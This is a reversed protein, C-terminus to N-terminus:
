LIRIDGNFYSIYCPFINRDILLPHLASDDQHITEKKKENAKSLLSFVGYIVLGIVLIWLIMMLIMSGNMMSMM